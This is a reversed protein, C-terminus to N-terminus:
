TKDTKAQCPSSSFASLAQIMQIAGRIWPTQPYFQPYAMSISALGKDNRAKAQIAESHLLGILGMYILLKSSLWLLKERHRVFCSV